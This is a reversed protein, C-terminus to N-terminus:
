ALCLYTPYSIWLYAAIIGSICIIFYLSMRIMAMNPFITLILDNSPDLAFLGWNISGIIIFVLCIQFIIRSIHM